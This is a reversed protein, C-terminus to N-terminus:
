LIVPVLSVLHFVGWRSMEAYRFQRVMSRERPSSYHMTSYERLWQKVLMGLSASILNCILSSFWLTDVQVISRGPALTSSGPLLPVTSNLAAGSLQIVIQQLLLVSQSAPDPKVNKYAELIFATVVASFLGTFVLLTDIEDKWNNVMDRNYNGFREELDTWESTDSLQHLNRPVNVDRKRRGIRLYRRRKSSRPVSPDTQLREDSSILVTSADGAPAHMRVPKRSNPLPHSDAAVTTSLEEPTSDPGETKEALSSSTPQPTGQINSSSSSRAKHM